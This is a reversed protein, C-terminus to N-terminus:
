SLSTRASPIRQMARFVVFGAIITWHSLKHPHTKVNQYNFDLFRRASWSNSWSYAARSRSETRNHSRCCHRIAMRSNRKLGHMKRNERGHQRDAISQQKARNTLRNLTTHEDSDPSAQLNEQMLTKHYSLNYIM